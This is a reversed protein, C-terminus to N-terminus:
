DQPPEEAKRHFAWAVLISFCYLIMLPVALLMQSAVDPGPTLVAALVVIIIIAYRWPKILTQHDIVGVRALFFAVVPLEFTIGFALLLRSSFSLYESIRLAPEIGITEYQEIFFAYGVYFVTFYCFTAGAFFFFTAFVVFPVVYVKEHGHLGPSIFQWAQYFLVPSAAFVGSIFSVKLKTFFAEAVGTGIMSVGSGAGVTEIPATLIGFIRDSYLYAVGFGVAVALIAKVVRWRLEELHETLPMEMESM